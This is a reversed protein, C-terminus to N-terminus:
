PKKVTYTPQPAQTGTSAPRRWTRSGVLCVVAVV